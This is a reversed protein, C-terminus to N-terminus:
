NGMTDTAWANRKAQMFQSGQWYGNWTIYVM